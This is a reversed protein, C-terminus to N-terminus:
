KKPLNSLRVGVTGRHGVSKLLTCNLAFFFIHFLFSHSPTINVTFPLLELSDLSCKLQARLALGQMKYPTRLNLERSLITVSVRAKWIFTKRNYEEMLDHLHYMYFALGQKPVPDTRTCNLGQGM